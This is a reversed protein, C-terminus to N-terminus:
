EQEGGLTVMELAGTPCVEICLPHGQCMECKAAKGTGPHIAVMDIPCYEVCLGCGICREADICVIGQDTRSIAKSPCVNMCYANDCQNCVVPFHYLNERRHEIALRARRPNYGGTLDM